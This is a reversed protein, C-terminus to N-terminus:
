QQKAEEAQKAEEKAASAKARAEAAKQLEAAKQQRAQFKDLRGAADILNSKGTYLPHCQACIEVRMDDKHTSGVTFSNGCACSVTIQYYEPHIGTKMSHKRYRSRGIIPRTCM